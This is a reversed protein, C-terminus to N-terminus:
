CLIITWPKLNITMMSLTLYLLLLRLLITNLLNQISPYIPPKLLTLSLTLLTKSKKTILSTTKIMKSYNNSIKSYLTPSKQLYTLITPHKNLLKEKQNIKKITQQSLPSHSKPKKSPLSLPNLYSHLINRFSRDWKKLSLTLLKLLSSKETTPSSFDPSHKQLNPKPGPSLTLSSKESNPTM